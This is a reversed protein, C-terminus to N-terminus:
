WVHSYISTYLLLLGSAEEKSALDNRMASGAEAVLAMVAPEM